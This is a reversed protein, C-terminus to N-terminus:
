FLRAVQGRRDLIISLCNLGEFTEHRDGRPVSRQYGIDGGAVNGQGIQVRPRRSRAEKLVVEIRLRRNLDGLRLGM